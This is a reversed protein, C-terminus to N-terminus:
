PGDTGPVSIVVLGTRRPLTAPTHTALLAVANVLRTLEEESNFAGFSVRLVDEHPAAGLIAFIRAGLEDAAERAPWGAIRFSVIGSRSGAPTLLTVGPVAALEERLASALRAMREHLWPLGVYMELWGVSRALGLASRRPLADHAPAVPGAPARTMVRRNVWLAGSGEPGHLWRQGSLAVFAAALGTVNIPVVGASSGADVAVLPGPASGAPGQAGLIAEAGTVPHIHEVVKLDAAGSIRAALRLAELHGHTLLIDDPDGGILAALVGRAEEMRQLVDAERDRGARGTRLDWGDAEEMARATEAPLPGAALMDLYIGAAAAPLGDRFLRLREADPLYPEM